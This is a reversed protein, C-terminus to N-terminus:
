LGAPPPDQRVSAFLEEWFGLGPGLSVGSGGKEWKGEVIETPDGYGMEWGRAVGIVSLSVLTQSWM